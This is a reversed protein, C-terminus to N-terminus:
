DSSSSRTHRPMSTFRDLFLALIAVVCSQEASPLLVLRNLQNQQVESHQKAFLDTEERKALDTNFSM